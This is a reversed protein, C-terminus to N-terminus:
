TEFTDHDTGAWSSGIRRARMDGVRGCDLAQAINPKLPFHHFLCTLTFAQRMNPPTVAQSALFECAYVCESVARNVLYWKGGVWREMERMDLGM